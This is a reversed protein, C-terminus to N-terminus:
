EVDDHGENENDEEPEEDWDSTDNSVVPGEHDIIVPENAHSPGVAQQASLELLLPPVPIGRARLRDAAEAPTLKTRRDNMEVQTPMVKEIMRGFVAPEARSLWKFYGVMGNKGRGDEGSLEAAELLAEKVRYKMTTLRGKPKGPNGRAFPNGKGPVPKTYADTKPVTRKPYKPKPGPKKKRKPASAAAM